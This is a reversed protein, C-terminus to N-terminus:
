FLHMMCVLSDQLSGCQALHLASSPVIIHVCALVQMCHIRPGPSMDREADTLFAQRM